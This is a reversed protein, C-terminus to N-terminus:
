RDAALILDDDSEIVLLPPPPDGRAAERLLEVEKPILVAALMNGLTYAAANLGHRQEDNDLRRRSLEWFTSFASGFAPESLWPVDATRPTPKKKDPRKAKITWHRGENGDFEIALTLAPLPIAEAIEALKAEGTRLRGLLETSPETLFLYFANGDGTVIANGKADRGIQVKRNDPMM